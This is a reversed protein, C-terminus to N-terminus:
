MMAANVMRRANNPMPARTTRIAPPPGESRAVENSPNNAMPVIADVQIAVALGM